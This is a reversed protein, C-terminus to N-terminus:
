AEVGLLKPLELLSRIEGDARDEPSAAERDVHQGGPRRIRLSRMGLQRAGSFDKGPNDGVYLAAGAALGLRRLCEEYPAPAPKWFHQGGLSESFVVAEFYHGLGLAALKNEQTPLWGDSLVGLVLGAARLQELAATDLCPRLQPTHRRYVQVLQRVYEETAAIGAAALAPTFLDGRRGEEFRARLAGEIDVGFDALVKEAVARYGSLVFDKELYLTDDLDFVVARIGDLRAAPAPKSPERPLFVSADYRSIRLGDRIPAAPHPPRGQCLEVIWGPWDAGAAISLPLGGGMRANLEMAVFRDPASRRFQLTVPGQCRFGEALRLALEELERCCEVVGQSVEGGRVRLRKRPVAALAKGAFDCLVDVTYEPGEVVEETMAEPTRTLLAELEARDHAVGIGESASGGAPKVFVPFELGEAEPDVAAPVAAGLEAFLQRSLRKDRSHRITFGPSLLLRMGPCAKAIEQRQRDLAELDPDITPILLEISHERCFGALADIFDPSSSRPLIKMEDAKYLAPALETIDSAFIRGGGSAGLARRFAAMLECRRGANLFLVNM